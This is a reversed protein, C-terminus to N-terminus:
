KEFEETNIYDYMYGFKTYIDNEIDYFNDDYIEISNYPSAILTTSFVYLAGEAPDIKRGYYAEMDKLLTPAAEDMVLKPGETTMELFAVDNLDYRSTVEVLVNENFMTQEYNNGRSAEIVGNNKDVTVYNYTSDVPDLWNYYSYGYEDDEQYWIDQYGINYIEKDMVARLYLIKKSEMDFFIEIPEFTNYEECKFLYVGLEFSHIGDEEVDVVQYSVVVQDNSKGAVDILADTITEEWGFSLLKTVEVLLAQNIETIEDNTFARNNETIITNKKVFAEIKEQFDMGGEILEIQYDSVKVDELVQKDARKYYQKPIDLALVTLGFLILILGIPAFITKFKKM